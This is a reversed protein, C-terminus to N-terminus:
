GRVGPAPNPGAPKRTSECRKREKHYFYNKPRQPPNTKVCKGNVEKYYPLKCAVKAPTLLLKADPTEANKVDTESVPRNLADQTLGASLPGAAAPGPERATFALVAFLLFFALSLIKGRIAM